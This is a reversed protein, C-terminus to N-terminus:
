NIFTIISRFFFLNSFHCFEKTGFFKNVTTHNLKKETRIIEFSKRNYFFSKSEKDRDKKVQQLYSTDKLFRM